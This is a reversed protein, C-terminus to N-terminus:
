WENNQDRKYSRSTVIEADKGRGKTRGRARPTVLCSLPLAMLPPLDRMVPSYSLQQADLFFAVTEDFYLELKFLLSNSKTM